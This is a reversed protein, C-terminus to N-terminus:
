HKGGLDSKSARSTLYLSRGTVLGAGALLTLGLGGATIQLPAVGGSRLALALSWLIGLGLTAAILGAVFIVQSRLPLSM